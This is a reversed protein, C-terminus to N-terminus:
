VLPYLLTFLRKTYVKSLVKFGNEKTVENSVKSLIIHGFQKDLRELLTIASKFGLDDGRVLLAKCIWLADENAESLKSSILDLTKKGFKKQDCRLLAYFM